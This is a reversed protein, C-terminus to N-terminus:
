NPMIRFAANHRRRCLAYHNNACAFVKLNRPVSQRFLEVDGLWRVNAFDATVFDFTEKFEWPRPM